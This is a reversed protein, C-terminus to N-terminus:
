RLLGFSICLSQFSDFLVIVFFLQRLHLQLKVYYLHSPMSGLRIPSCKRLVTGTKMSMVVPDRNIGKIWEEASLAPTPAVTDPYLDDQYQESKGLGIM